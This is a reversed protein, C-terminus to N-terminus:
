QRSSVPLKMLMTCLPAETVAVLALAFAVFHDVADPLRLASPRVSLRAKPLSFREARTSAQHEEMHHVLLAAHRRPAEGAAM